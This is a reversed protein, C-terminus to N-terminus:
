RNFTVGIGYMTDADRMFVRRASLLVSLPSNGATAVVGGTTMFRTGSGEVGGGTIAGYGVGPEVFPVLKTGSSTPIWSIPMSIAGAYYLPQNTRMTSAAGFAPRLGASLQGETIPLLWEAGLMYRNRCGDCVSTGGSLTFQGSGAPAYWALAVNNSNPGPHGYRMGWASQTNGTWPASPLGAAPTLTLATYAMVDGVSQARAAVVPAFALTLGLVCAAVKTHRSLMTCRWTINAVRASPLIRRAAL